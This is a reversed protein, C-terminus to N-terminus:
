SEYADSGEIVFLPEKVNKKIQKNLLKLGDFMTEPTIQNICHPKDSNCGSSNVLNKCEALAHKPRIIVSPVNYPYYLAPASSVNMNIDGPFCNPSLVPLNLAAAVHMLGTDNGIYCDCLNLVAASQRYNLKNTCDIIYENDVTSVIIKSAEVDEPGGFIVFVAEEEKLIMNILEAYKEAPWRKRALKINGGASIAYVKRNGVSQLYNEAEFRDVPNLWIELSRNVIQAKTYKHLVYLFRDAYHSKKFDRWDLHFTTFETFASGLVKDAQDLYNLDVREKAGSFYALLQSSTYHGFNFAVDIDYRLLPKVVNPINRYYTFFDSIKLLVEDKCPVVEDVYPCCEAMDKAFRNVMLSIHSKPYIRRIERIVSSMLVFDGVGADHIILINNKAKNKSKHSSKNRYGARDFYPEMFTKMESADIRSNSMMLEYLKNIGDIVHQIKTEEALQQRM